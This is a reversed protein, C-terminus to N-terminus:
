GGPFWANILFILNKCSLESFKKYRQKFVNNPIISPNFHDNGKQRYSADNCRDVGQQQKADIGLLIARIREDKKGDKDGARPVEKQRHGGVQVLSYERVLQVVDAGNEHRQESEVRTERDALYAERDPPVHQERQEDIDHECKRRRDAVAIDVVLGYFKDFGVPYPVIDGRVAGTVVDEVQHDHAEKDCIHPKDHVREQALPVHRVLAEHRDGRNLKSGDDCKEDRSNQLAVRDHHGGDIDEVLKRQQVDAEMDLAVIHVLSDAFREFQLVGVPVYQHSRFVREEAAVLHGVLQERAEFHAPYVVRHGVIRRYVVQKERPVSRRIGLVSRDFLAQVEIALVVLYLQALKRKGLAALNMQKFDIVLRGHMPVDIHQTRVVNTEFEHELLVIRMYSEDLFLHNDIHCFDYFVAVAIRAAM